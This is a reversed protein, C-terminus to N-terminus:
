YKRCAKQYLAMADELMERVDELMALDLPRLGNKDLANPDAGERLFVRVVEKVGRSAAWHLPTNGANDVAELDSGRRLLLKANAVAVVPDFNCGRMEQHDYSWFVHHLATMDASDRTNIDVSPLLLTIIDTSDASVSAAALHLATRGSEDTRAPDAGKSLLWEVAVLNGHRAAIHLPTLGEKDPAHIDSERYLLKQLTGVTNKLHVNSAAWHFPRRGSHDLASIDANHHLLANVFEDTACFAAVHLPTMGLSDPEDVLLNKQLLYSLVAPTKSFVSAHLYSIDYYSVSIYPDVGQKLLMQVSSVTGRVCAALLFSMGDGGIGSLDTGISILQRLVETHCGTLYWFLAASVTEFDAQYMDIESLILNSIQHMKEVEAELPLEYDRRYAPTTSVIRAHVADSLGTIAGVRIEPHSFASADAELLRRVVEIKGSYAASVLAENIYVGNYCSSCGSIEAGHELLLDVMELSGKRCAVVLPRVKEFPVEYPPKERDTNSSHSFNVDAGHAVLVKLTKVHEKWVAIHVYSHGGPLAVNVDAANRSLRMEVYTALDHEVALQMISIGPSYKDEPHLANRLAVYSEFHEDEPAFHRDILEAHSKGSNEAEQCHYFCSEVAYSLFPLEEQRRRQFRKDLGSEARIHSALEQVEKTSLYQVCAKALTEHGNSILEQAEPLQKNASLSDKVSQHIFQVVGAQNLGEGDEDNLGDKVAKVELLGGCRSRIRRKMTADDQVFNASGKISDHSLTDLGAALATAYRFETITLPRQASLTIALMTNTEVAYRPNINGLLLAFLGGLEDPIDDVTEKLEGITAGDRLATQIRELALHAWLFIGDAKRVLDTKLQKLNSGPELTSELASWRDNVYAVIDPENKQEMRFGGSIVKDMSAPLDRCSFLVRVSGRSSPPNAPSMESLFSVLEQTPESNGDCEDLADIIFCVPSERAAYAVAAHLARKLSSLPWTVSGVDESDKLGTGMLHQGSDYSVFMWEDLVADFSSPCQRLVQSLAFRLFGDLSHQRPGGRANFAHQVVVSFQHRHRKRIRTAVESMLVSKGSGPKGTVAFLGTGTRIWAFLESDVDWLWSLTKEHAEKFQATTMMTSFEGLSQLCARMLRDSRGDKASEAIEQLLKTVKRQLTQRLTNYADDQEGEFRVLHEHDRALPINESWDSDFVASDKDVVVDQLGQRAVQEYFNIIQIQGKVRMFDSNVIFSENARPQLMTKVSRPVERSALKMVSLGVKAISKDLVHSGRHPTGLFVILKTSKLIYPDSSQSIVLAQKIVVGGLSHGLFVIPRKEQLAGLRNNRLHLLLSEAHQYVGLSNSSGSSIDAVYGFVMIRATPLTKAIDVPWYFDTPEHYFTRFPAGNLGHLIVLDLEVDRPNHLVTLGDRRVTEPEPSTRTSKGAM